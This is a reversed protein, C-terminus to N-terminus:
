EDETSETAQEPDPNEPNMNMASLFFVIMVPRSAFESLSASIIAMAVLAIAFYPHHRVSNIFAKIMFYVILMIGILGQNYLAEFYLCHAVTGLRSLTAGEGFGFILAAPHQFLDTFMAGWVYTRGGLELSNSYNFRSIVSAPIMRIGLIVVIVSFLFIVASTGTNRRISDRFAYVLSLVAAAAVAIIGARSGTWFTLYLLLLLLLICATKRVATLERDMVREILLCCPLILWSSISNGDVRLSGNVVWLRGDWDTYQFQLCILLVLIFQLRAVNKIAKYEDPGFDNQIQLFLVGTAVAKALLLSGAGPLNSWFMSLASYFVYLLIAWSYDKRLEFGDKLKVGALLLFCVVYYYQETKFILETPCIILFFLISYLIIPNHREANTMSRETM